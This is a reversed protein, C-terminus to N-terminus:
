HRSTEAVSEKLSDGSIKFKDLSEVALYLLIIWLYNLFPPQSTLMTFLIAGVPGAYLFKRSHYIFPFSCFFVTFLIIVPGYIISLSLLNIGTKTNWVDVPTGFIAHTWQDWYFSPSLNLGRDSISLKSAGQLKRTYINKVIVQGIISVILLAYFRLFSLRGKIRNLLAVGIVWILAVYSTSAFTLVGALGLTSILVFNIKRSRFPSNLM